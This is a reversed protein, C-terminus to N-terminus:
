KTENTKDPINTLLSSLPPNLSFHATDLSLLISLGPFSKAFSEPGQQVCVHGLSHTLRANLLQMQNEFFLTMKLRCKENLESCKGLIHVEREREVSGTFGVQESLVSLPQEKTSLCANWQYIKSPYGLLM